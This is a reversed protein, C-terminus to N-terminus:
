PWHAPSLTKVRESFDFRNKRCTQNESKSNSNKSSRLKDLINKAAPYHKKDDHIIDGNIICFAFPNKTHEQNIRTVLTEFYKEYETDPQGYHGDSAVVFRLKVKKKQWEDVNLETAALINGNALLIAVSSAYKTFERRNM